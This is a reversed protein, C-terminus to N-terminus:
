ATRAKKSRPLFQELMALLRLAVASPDTAKSVIDVCLEAVDGPSANTVSARVVELATRDEREIREDLSEQLVPRPRRFPSPEKRFIAAVEKLVWDQGRDEAVARAFLSRAAEAFQPKLEWEEAQSIVMGVTHLTRAHASRSKRRIFPHFLYIAMWGIGGLDGPSLLDAIMATKILICVRRVTINLRDAALHVGKCHTFGGKKRRKDPLEDGGKLFEILFAHLTRGVDLLVDRYSGEAALYAARAKELLDAATSTTM